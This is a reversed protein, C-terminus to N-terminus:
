ESHLIGVPLHLGQVREGFRIPMVGRLVRPLKPRCTARELSSQVMGIWTRVLQLLDQVNISMILSRHVYSAEHGRAWGREYWTHGACARRKELVVLGPRWVRFASLGVCLFSRRLRTPLTETRFFIMLFM